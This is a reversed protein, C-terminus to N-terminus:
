NKTVTVVRKRDPKSCSIMVSGDTTYFKVIRLQSTEVINTPTVGLKTAVAQITKICTDFDMAESTSEVGAFAPQVLFCLVVALLRKM